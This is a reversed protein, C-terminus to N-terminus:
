CIIFMVNIGMASYHMSRAGRLDAYWSGTNFTTTFSELLATFDNESLSYIHDAVTEAQLLLYVGVVLMALTTLGALGLHIHM